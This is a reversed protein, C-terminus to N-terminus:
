PPNEPCIRGKRVAIPEQIVGESVIGHVGRGCLIDLETGGFGCPQFGSAIDHNRTRASFFATPKRAFYLVCIASALPPRVWRRCSVQRGGTKFVPVIVPGCASGHGHGPSAAGKGNRLMATAVEAAARDESVAEAVEM